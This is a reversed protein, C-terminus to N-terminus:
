TLSPTAPRALHAPNPHDVGSARSYKDDEADLPTQTAVLVAVGQGNSCKEQGTAHTRQGNKQERCVGVPDEDHREEDPSPHDSEEYRREVVARLQTDLTRRDREAGCRM